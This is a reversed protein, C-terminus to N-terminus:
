GRKDLRSSSRSAKVPGRIIEAAQAVIADVPDSETPSCPASAREFPVGCDVCFADGTYILTGAVLFMVDNRIDQSTTRYFLPRAWDHTKVETPATQLEM